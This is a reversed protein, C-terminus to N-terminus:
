PPPQGETDDWSTAGGKTEAAEAIEADAAARADAEARAAEAADEDAKKRALATAEREKIDQRNRAVVLAATGAGVMAVADLGRRLLIFITAGVLCAVALLALGPHKKLWTLM